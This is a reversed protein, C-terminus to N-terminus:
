ARNERSADDMKGMWKWDNDVQSLANGGPCPQVEGGARSCFSSSCTQKFGMPVGYKSMGDQRTKLIKCKYPSKNNRFKRRCFSPMYCCDMPESVKVPNRIQAVNPLVQSQNQVGEGCSELHKWSTSWKSQFAEMGSMVNFASTDSTFDVIWASIWPALWRAGICCYRM